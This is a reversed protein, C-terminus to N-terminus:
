CIDIYIYTYVYTGTDHLSAMKYEQVALDSFSALAASSLGDFSAYQPMVLQARARSYLGVMDHREVRLRHIYTYIYICIYVYICM